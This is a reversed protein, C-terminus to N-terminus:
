AGPRPPQIRRPLCLPGGTEPDTLIAAEVGFVERVAEVTLVEAPPGEAVIRGARVLALRDAYRAAQTLDHLVAVVTAGEADVLRRMLGLVEVQHALDLYTTPEDLLLIGSEQALTMAIWARQRQGGSLEDLPRDRLPSLGTRALAAEVAAADEARWGGLFPRHPYRGQRVLEEVRLGEPAAASQALLGVRRALAKAGIRAIDGGDLLIRGAEPRQLGALARLITSKGCGNPGILATFRGPPICLDLGEVVRGRGYGIAVGEAVLGETM